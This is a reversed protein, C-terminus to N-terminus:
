KSNFTIDFLFKFTRRQRKRYTEDRKRCEREREREREKHLTRAREQIRENNDISEATRIHWRGANM